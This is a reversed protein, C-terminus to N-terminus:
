EMHAALERSYKIWYRALRKHTRRWAEESMTSPKSM